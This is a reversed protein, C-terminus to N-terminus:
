KIIKSSLKYTLPSMGVQKEFQKIFHSQDCFGTTLAVETMTKSKLMLRKAKRIRNQLQFQHPTLGAEAKFTRIFHYKSIFANKAMEEISFKNEPYLELQKKYHTILPNQSCPHLDAPATLSYFKVALNLRNLLYIIQNQSIKEKHLADPLLTMVHEQISDEAYCHIINKDICLSLLTYSNHASIRHPIYPYIVFTQNKKYTKIENYATLMVSGDLVIGITLVSVHNHIPYSIAVNNCFILEVGTNLNRIYRVSNVAAM